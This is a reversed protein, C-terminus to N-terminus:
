PSPLLTEKGMVKAFARDADTVKAGAELLQKMVRARRAGDDAVGGDVFAVGQITLHVLSNGYVSANPDGGNALFRAVGAEDLSLFLGQAALERFPTEVAAVHIPAFLVTIGLATWLGLPLLARRGALWNRVSSGRGGRFVALNLVVRVVALGLTCAAVLLGRVSRATTVAAEDLDLLGPPGSLAAFASLAVTLVFFLGAVLILVVAGELASVDRRTNAVDQTLAALETQV